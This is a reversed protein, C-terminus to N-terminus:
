AASIVIPTMSGWILLEILQTALRTHLPDPPNGVDVTFVGSFNISLVDFPLGQIGAKPGAYYLLTPISSGTVMNTGSAIVGTKILVLEITPTWQNWSYHEGEFVPQSTISSTWAGNFDRIAVGIGPINTPYVMGFGSLQFASGSPEIKTKWYYPVLVGSDDCLLTAGNTAFHQQYLITGINASNSVPIGGTLKKTENHFPYDPPSWCTMAEAQGSIIYFLFCFIINFFIRLM